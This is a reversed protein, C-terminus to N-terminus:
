LPKVVFGVTITKGNFKQSERFYPEVKSCQLTDFEMNYIPLTVDTEILTVIEQTLESCLAVSNHMVLIEFSAIYTQNNDATKKDAIVEEDCLMVPITTNKSFSSVTKVSNINLDLIEKINKYPQGGFINTKSVIEM